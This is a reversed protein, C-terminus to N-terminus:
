VAGGIATMYTQIRNYLKLDDIAGSGIYAVAIQKTSFLIHSGGYYIALIDFTDPCIGVSSEASSTIINGNKNLSTANAGTRRGSFFGASSAVGTGLTTSPDDNVNVYASNDIYKTILYSSPDLVAGAGMEASNTAANTRCYVGYSASNRTYKVGDTSPTYQTNLYGTAGDGTYGRDAVWTISNNESAQLTSSTGSTAVIGGDMISYSAITEDEQAFLWLRDLEAFNGDAKLGVILDNILTKRGASLTGGFTDDIYTFYKQADTDYSSVASPSTAYRMRGSLRNAHDRVIM